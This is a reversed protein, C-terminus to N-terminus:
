VLAHSGEGTLFADADRLVQNPAPTFVPTNEIRDIELWCARQHIAAERGQHISLRSATEMLGLLLLRRDAEVRWYSSAILETLTSATM